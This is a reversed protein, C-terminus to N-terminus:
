NPLSLARIACAEGKSLDAEAVLGSLTDGDKFILRMTEYVVTASLPSAFAVFALMLAVPTLRKMGGLFSFSVFFAKIKKLVPMMLKKKKPHM